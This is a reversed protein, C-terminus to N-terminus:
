RRGSKKKKKAAVKAAPKKAAPKAKATKAAKAATKTPAKSPAPKKKATEAPKVEAPKADAAKPEAAKSEATEEREALNRKEEKESKFDTEYWGGGKLRFNPASVLKKLTQKKCSPCQKLPEDSIKQLAEVYFKCNSCEYEYFPMTTRLPRWSAVAMMPIASSHELVTSVLSLSGLKTPM